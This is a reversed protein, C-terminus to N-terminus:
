KMEGARKGALEAFKTKPFLKGIEELLKAADKKKGAAGLEAAKRLRTVSEVAMAAWDAMPQAGNQIVDFHDAKAVLNWDVLVGADELQKRATEGIKAPATTDSDGYVLFVPLHLAIAKLDAKPPIPQLAAPLLLGCFRTPFRWALKAGEVGAASFALVVVRATDFAGDKATAALWKDLAPEDPLDTTLLAVRFGAKTFEGEVAAKVKAGRNEDLERIIVLPPVKAADEAWSIGPTCCVLLALLSRM